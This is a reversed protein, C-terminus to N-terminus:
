GGSARRDACVTEKIQFKTGSPGSSGPVTVVVEEKRATEGGTPLYQFVLKSLDTGTAGETNVFSLKHRYFQQVKAWGDPTELEFILSELPCAPGRFPYVLRRTVTSPTYVPIDTIVGELAPPKPALKCGFAPALVALVLFTRTARRILKM